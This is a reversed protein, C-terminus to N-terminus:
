VLNLGTQLAWDRCIIAHMIYRHRRKIRVQGPLSLVSKEPAMKVGTQARWCRAVLQAHPQSSPVPRTTRVPRCPDSVAAM